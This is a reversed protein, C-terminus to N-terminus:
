NYSINRSTQTEVNSFNTSVKGVSAYKEWVCTIDCLRWRAAMKWWRSAVRAVKLIFPETPRITVIRNFVRTSKADIFFQRVVPGCSFRCVSDTSDATTFRIRQFFLTPGNERWARPSLNLREHVIGRVSRNAYGLTIPTSRSRSLPM